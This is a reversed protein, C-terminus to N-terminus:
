FSTNMPYDYKIEWNDYEILQSCHTGYYKCLGYLKNRDYNKRSTCDFATIKNVPIKCANPYLCLIFRFKDSGEVNPKEEGNLDFYILYCMDRKIYLEAGDSFKLSTINEGLENKTLIIQSNKAYPKIYKTIFESEDEYEDENPNYHSLAEDFINIFNKFKITSNQRKIYDNYFVYKAVLMFVATVAIVTATLLIILLKKHM